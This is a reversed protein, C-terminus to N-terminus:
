SAAGETPADVGFLERFEEISDANDEMRFICGERLPCFVAMLGTTMPAGCKACSPCGADEALPAAESLTSSGHAALHVSDTKM